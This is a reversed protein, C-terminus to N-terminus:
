GSPSCEHACAHGRDAESGDRSAALGDDLHRSLDFPATERADEARAEAVIERKAFGDRERGALDHEAGADGRDVGAVDGVERAGRREQVLDRIPAEAEADPHTVFGGHAADAHRLALWEGVHALEHAIQTRNRPDAVQRRDNERRQAVPHDRQGLFDRLAHHERVARPGPSASKKM